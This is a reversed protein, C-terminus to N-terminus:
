RLSAGGQGRVQGVAAQVVLGRPQQSWLAQVKAPSVPDGRPGGNVADVVAGVGPRVSWSVPSVTATLTWKSRGTSTVPVGTNLSSTPPSPHGGATSALLLALWKTQM